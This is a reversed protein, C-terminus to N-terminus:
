EAPPTQEAAPEPAPPAPTPAPPAPEPTPPTPESASPAPEPASAAAAHPEPIASKVADTGKKIQEGYRGGTKEDIFSGAKDVADHIKDANGEVTEKGKDLLGKLTDM